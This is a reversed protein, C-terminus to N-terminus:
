FEQLLDRPALHFSVSFDTFEVGMGAEVDELRKEISKADAPDPTKIGPLMSLVRRRFLELRPKLVGFEARIEDYTLGTPGPTFMATLESNNSGELLDIIAQQDSGLVLGELMERILLIKLKPTLKYDSKQKRWEAVIQRAMDDSDDDGQIQNTKDLAELYATLTQRSYNWFQFINAFFGTATRGFRMLTPPSAAFGQQIVHTLEHALLRKGEPTEPAYRSSDFVIRSGVTYASADVARASEAAQADRHVRVQSFDYGFREEMLARTGTELPQGNNALVDHVIPPAGSGEYCAASKRQVTEEEKKKPEDAAPQVGAPAEGTLKFDPVWPGLPGRAAPAPVGMQFGLRDGATGFSLPSTRPTLQDPRLMKSRLYADFMRKEDAKEGETKLGERFKAQEVAMRATEARFRESETLAPKKAGAKEKGLSFSFTAMVKTPKDVPGEYTIKVKLGPKIKDLPIEPIGIPLEKHTLALATVAGSLAAGTIVKGPLTSIFADGLEKAKEEIEKGPATELFAEGAKKAAEKYKEEDSKPKPPEERQVAGAKGLSSISGRDPPTGRVIAEAARDAEQEYRDGPQNVALKTQLSLPSFSRDSSTRRVQTQFIM